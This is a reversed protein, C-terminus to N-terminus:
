SVKVKDPSKSVAILVQGTVYSYTGQRGEFWSYKVFVILFILLNYLTSRDEMM